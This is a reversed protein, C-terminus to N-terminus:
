HRPITQQVVCHCPYVTESRLLYIWRGNKNWSLLWWQIGALNVHWLILLTNSFLCVFYLFESDWFVNSLYFYNKSFFILCPNLKLVNFLVLKQPIPNKYINLARLNEWLGLLFELFTPLSGCHRDGTAYANFQAHKWLPPPSFTKALTSCSCHSCWYAEDIEHSAKSSKQLTDNYLWSSEDTPVMFSPKAVLLVYIYIDDKSKVTINFWTCKWHCFLLRMNFYIFMCIWQHCVFAIHYLQSLASILPWAMFSCHTVKLWGAEGDRWDVTINHSSFFLLFSKCFLHWDLM